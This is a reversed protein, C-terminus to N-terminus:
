ANASCVTLPLMITNYGFIAWVSSEAPQAPGWDAALCMQGGCSLSCTSILRLQECALCRRLAHCHRFCCDLASTDGSPCCCKNSDVKWPAMKIPCFLWIIAGTMPDARGFTAVMGWPPRVQCAM